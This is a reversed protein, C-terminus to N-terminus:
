FMKQYSLYFSHTDSFLTIGVKHAVHPACCATITLFLYESKPVCSVKMDHCEQEKSIDIICAKFMFYWRLYFQLLLTKRPMYWLASVSSKM